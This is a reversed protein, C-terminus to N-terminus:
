IYYDHGWADIGRRGKGTDVKGKTVAKARSDGRPRGHTVVRAHTRAGRKRGWYIKNKRKFDREGGGIKRDGQKEFTRKQETKPEATGKGGTILV